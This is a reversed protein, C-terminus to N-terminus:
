REMAGPPVKWRNVGANGQRVGGALGTGTLVLTACRRIIVGCDFAPCGLPPRTSGAPVSSMTAYMSARNQTAGIALDIEIKARVPRQHRLRQVVTNRRQRRPSGQFIARRGLPDVHCFPAEVTRNRGVAVSWEDPPVDSQQPEVTAEDFSPIVKVLLGRLPLEEIDISQAKQQAM